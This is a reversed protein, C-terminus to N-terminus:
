RAELQWPAKGEVVANLQEVDWKIVLGIKFQGASNKVKPRSHPVGWQRLQRLFRNWRRWQSAVTCDLVRALDEKFFPGQHFNIAIIDAVLPAILSVRWCMAAVVQRLRRRKTKIKAKQYSTYKWGDAEMILKTKM